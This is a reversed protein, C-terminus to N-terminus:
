KADTCESGVGEPLEGAPFSKQFDAVEDARIVDLSSVFLTPSITRGDTRHFLLVCSGLFGCVAPLRMGPHLGSSVLLLM